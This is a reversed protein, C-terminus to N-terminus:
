KKTSSDRPLKQLPLLKLCTEAIVITSSLVQARLTGVVIRGVLRSRLQQLSYVLAAASEEHVGLQAAAEHRAHCDAAAESLLAVNTGGPLEDRLAGGLDESGARLEM